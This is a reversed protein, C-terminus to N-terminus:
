FGTPGCEGEAVLKSAAMTQKDDSQWINSLAAQLRPKSALDIATGTLATSGLGWGLFKATTAIWKTKANLAAGLCASFIGIAGAKEATEWLHNLLENPIDKIGGVVLGHAVVEAQKGRKDMHMVSQANFDWAEAVAKGCLSPIDPNRDEVADSPNSM